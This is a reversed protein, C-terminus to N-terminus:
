KVEYGNMRLHAKFMEGPSPLAEASPWSESNWIDSAKLARPCHIFCEQAEVVVALSPSKGSWGMSEILEANETLSVRGNLRLVEQMGPIIFLMGVQPNQLMNLLSDIRRNGVREPYIIRRDDLPKVFGAEDGRPSTDCRGSGDSSSLFFLPSMSLYHRIHEDIRDVSKQVVAEHPSGFLEQLRGASVVPDQEWLLNTM